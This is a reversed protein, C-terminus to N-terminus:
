AGHAVGRRMQDEDLYAVDGTELAQYAESAEYYFDVGDDAREHIYLKGQWTVYEPLRWHPRALEHVWFAAVFAHDAYRDLRRGRLSDTPLSRYSKPLARLVIM